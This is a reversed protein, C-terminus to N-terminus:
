KTVKDYQFCFYNMDTVKFFKSHYRCFDKEKKTLNFWAVYSLCVRLVMRDTFDGQRNWTLGSKHNYKM